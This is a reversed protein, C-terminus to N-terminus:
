GERRDERWDQPRDDRRDEPPAAPHAAQHGAPVGAGPVPPGPVWYPPPDEERKGFAASLALLLVQRKYM